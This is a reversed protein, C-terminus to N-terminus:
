RRKAFWSLSALVAGTLGTTATLVGLGGFGATTILWGGLMTAGLWGFSSFTINLGLVAGRATGAMESLAALLAPRGIANALTYGFGLGISVAVGPQWRLAPLALLGTATLSAAFVLPRAPLRDALQGGLVNGLLNGLAVLALGVGLVPLSVGYTTLLYTPLFVAVSAYCVREMMGAALLALTPPGILRLVARAPLPREAQGRATPPVVWWVLVVAVFTAAGYAAFAGRWGAFAGIFTLLPVGLVLSLSQGTMLWGLARGREAPPFRDAVTAFVTGMFAGGGVGGVLRWAVVWGYTASAAVGLPSIVLLLLGALLLPKRGLRDSAAGACVSTAGWTVSGFAVLNGVAALDTALDRAMALLFPALSIGNGTVLFTACCLAGLMLAREHRNGVVAADAAARPDRAYGVRRTQGPM